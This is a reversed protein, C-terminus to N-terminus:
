VVCAILTGLISLQFPPPIYLPPPFFCVLLVSGVSPSSTIVTRQVWFLQDWWHSQWVSLKASGLWLHEGKEPWFGGILGLSTALLGRAGGVRRGQTLIIRWRKSELWLEAWNSAFLSPCSECHGSSAAKELHLRRRDDRRSLVQDACRCSFQIHCPVRDPLSRGWEFGCGKTKDSHNNLM